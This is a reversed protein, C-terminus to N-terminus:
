DEKVDPINTHPDREFQEKFAVIEARLELLRRHFQDVVATQASSVALDLEALAEKKAQAAVQEPDPPPLSADTGQERLYKKAGEITFRQDYLLHKIALTAELDRRRYLRQNSKTKQPRISPFESEWYRLVHQKVGTIKAVEGIKFYLKDPLDVRSAM